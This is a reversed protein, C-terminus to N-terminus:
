GPIRRGRHRNCPLDTGHVSRCPVVPPEQWAASGFRDRGAAPRAWVLIWATLWNDPYGDPGRADDIDVPLTKHFEEDHRYLERFQRRDDSRGLKHGFFWGMDWLLLPENRNFRIGRLLYDVGRKVWHYRYRYDDFEAAVNYALEWSQFRWVSIFHPQLKAIQNLSAQLNAWDETKKYNIAKTWLIHAAVGRMGLM